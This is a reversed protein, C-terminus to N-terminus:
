ATGRIVFNTSSGANAGTGDNISIASACFISVRDTHVDLFSPVGAGGVAAPIQWSASTAQRGDWEIFVPSAANNEMLLHDVFGAFHVYVAQGAGVAGVPPNDDFGIATGSRIRDKAQQQNPPADTALPSGTDAFRPLLGSENAPNPPNPTAM